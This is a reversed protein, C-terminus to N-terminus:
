PQSPNTSDDRSALVIRDGGQGKAEYMAADAASIVETLTQNAHTATALGISVTVTPQAAASVALRIREAVVHAYHDAIRDVVLFEEGGWRVVVADRRVSSRICRSIRILVEDGVAHGLADNIRKFGDVDILLACLGSTPPAAENLRKMAVSLGRRNTMETLPDILALRSSSQLLWFGFHLAPLICVTVLLAIVARSVAIQLGYEPTTEALWIAIGVVSVVCWLIHALHLRPGHFFVVYGGACLLLPMSSMALKADGFLLTSLTMIIDVYILLAASQRENPWEWFAWRASWLLSGIGVAAWGIRILATDTVPPAAVNIAALLGMTVGIGAIIKRLIPLMGRSRLFETRWEYDDSQRWWQMLLGDVPGGSMVVPPQRPESVAPRGERYYLGLM